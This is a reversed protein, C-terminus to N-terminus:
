ENKDPEYDEYDEPLAEGLCEIYPTSDDAAVKARARKEAAYQDPAPICVHFTVMWRKDKSM